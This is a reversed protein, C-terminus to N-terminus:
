AYELWWGKSPFTKDAFKQVFMWAPNKPDKPKVHFWTSFKRVGTLLAFDENSVRNFRMNWGKFFRKDLDGQAVITSDQHRSDQSIKEYLDIVKKEPGELVQFFRGEVYLLMGSIEGADNNQQSAKLIDELDESTLPRSEKSVYVLYKLSTSM